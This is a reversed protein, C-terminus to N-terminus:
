GKLDAVSKVPSDKPVLLAVPKGNTPTTALYVLPAGAAQAFIPPSEATSALDLSGANLAELQQPGAAFETWKVKFGLPELAKDLTGQQELVALSTLQKSRVVRFEQKEGDSSSATNASAASGQSQAANNSPATCSALSTSLALSYGICFLVSRRTIKSRQWGSFTKNLSWM